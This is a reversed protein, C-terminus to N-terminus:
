LEEDDVDELSVVVSVLLGSLSVVVDISSITLPSLFYVCIGLDEDTIVLFGVLPPLETIGIAAPIAAAAAAPIPALAYM